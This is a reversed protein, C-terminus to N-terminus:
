ESADGSDDPEDEDSGDQIASIAQALKLKKSSSKDPAAGSQHKGEFKHARGECTSPKHVRWHGECKGGTESSCWYWDKNNWSKPKHLNEEKPKEAMWAPKEAKKKTSNSKNKDKDKWEVKKKSETKESKNGKKWQKSVQKLEAQLALIKEEEASPMNYRGAEKLLTFKNKTLNMLADETLTGGEEYEEQKRLVYLHFSKDEVALYGKFLNILLDTTIQGRATLSEELGKVYTNFKEIDGGISLMYSDLNSLKTRITSITANTDLHSERIIVKLLLNGSPLGGVHFQSRWIMIKSKGEKSISNMLCKYLMYTDQAPRIPLAIYTAEFAHVTEITIQGYNEILNNTNALVDAADEPIMMIGTVDNDWGYELARVSLSHLFQIMGDPQCNYLEEDLKETSYRFVGKGARTNFDIVGPIAMAPSLAFAANAAM